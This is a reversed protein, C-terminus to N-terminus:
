GERGKEGVGGGDRGGEEERGGEGLRERASERWIEKGRESEGEGERGVGGEM